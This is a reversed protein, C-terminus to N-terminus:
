HCYQLLTIARSDLNAAEEIKAAEEATTIIFGTVGERTIEADIGEGKRDLETAEEVEAAGKWLKRCELRTTHWSPHRKDRSGSFPNM